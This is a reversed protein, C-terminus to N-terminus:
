RAFQLVQELIEDVFLQYMKGSPHLGDKAILAKDQLGKRSIGTIDFYHVGETASIQRIKKNFLDIRQSIGPQDKEGYPTYGYDPISLVIVKHQDGAAFAIASRVLNRFQMEFEEVSRGQFENNVGILLSVLDYTNEKPKHRDIAQQLDYTTWGAQAIVVPDSFHSGNNNLANVLLQPYRQSAEIREGATYSDGLALYKRQAQPINGKTAANFSCSATIALSLILYFYHRM